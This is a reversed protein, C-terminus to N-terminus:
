FPQEGPALEPTPNTDPRWDTDPDFFDHPFPAPHGHKDWWGTYGGAALIALDHERQTIPQTM